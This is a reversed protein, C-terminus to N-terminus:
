NHQKFKKHKVCEKLSRLVSWLREANVTTEKLIDLQVVEKNNVSAFFFIGVFRPPM